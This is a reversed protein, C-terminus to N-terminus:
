QKLASDFLAFLERWHREAAAENHAPTDAPVFGHMAGEYITIEADVGAKNMAEALRIKQEEPFSPDNDAGAILVKAKIGGAKLHPSDPADTALGGAHFAAAATIRGPFAAAARLAMAGGFCYGVVGIREAKADTRDALWKIMDATDSVCHDPNTTAKMKEISARWKERDSFVENPDIPDYGGFRWFLDPLLVFVGRAALREAIDFLAPRIAFADMYLIAAPWPGEGSAPTFAYGPFDENATPIRVKEM